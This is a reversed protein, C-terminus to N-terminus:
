PNTASPTWVLSWPGSHPVYEQLGWNVTLNGTPPTGNTTLTVTMIATNGSNDVTSAIDDFPYANMSRDIIQIDPTVGAPFNESWLDFRYGNGLFTISDVVFDSAGLKVPQNLDWEQGVQPQDGAAFQM